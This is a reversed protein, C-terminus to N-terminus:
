SVLITAPDSWASAGNTGIVRIRVWIDKARPLGTLVMVRSNPFSGGDSWPGANPDLTWGVEYVRVYTLPIFDQAFGFIVKALRQFGRALRLFDHAFERFDHAFDGAIRAFNACVTALNQGGKALRAEGQWLVGVGIALCAGGQGLSHLTTAFISRSEPLGLWRSQHIATVKGHSAMSEPLVGIMEPLFVLKKPGAVATGRQLALFRTNKERCCSNGGGLTRPSPGYYERRDCYTNGRGQEQTRLWHSRSTNRARHRRPFPCAM